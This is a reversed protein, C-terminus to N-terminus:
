ESVVIRALDLRDGVPRGERTVPLRDTPDTLLYLGVALTYAGPQTEPPVLVGFRDLVREDPVWTDTPRLTAGPESDTQALLRGAEDYLHVFVKYRDAISEAARWFLALQLIDGPALAETLLTYGDLCISPGFRADLSVAPVDTAEAPVAYVALRVDGYWAEGAKYTHSELWSEIFREPDSEGEGWFIAFLRQHDAVIQELEAQNIAANFPRQRALPFVHRDDPYYFTFVEWQNPANLVVADGPRAGAEIQHAIARYDARAYGEDFYLNNVSRGTDLSMLAALFLIVSRYSLLTNREGWVGVGGAIRWGGVIGQAVLLSLPAATVLLFKQYAVKYLGLGLILGAPVLVLLAVLTWRLHYPLSGVAEDREDVPPLLSLVTLSGVAILGGSVLATPVTRGFSLLRWIDLLADVLEFSEGPSSWSTVQHWAIPLWPLYLVVVAAQAVAWTLLRRGPARRRGEEGPSRSALLAWLGVGVNQAVWVFPFAYHTYLGAAVTLVYVVLPWRRGGRERGGVPLWAVLAWTSAMAWLALMAYMRAEQAYYVQFPNLAVLGAAALSVAQDEFLRRGLLFTFGVLALSCVASLGRLAAESHGLLARWYHLALYYGPPHIDGEAGALILDVSREALRASNGEDNWFSQADIRYFRLGGALLLILALFFWSRHSFSLHRNMRGRIYLCVAFLKWWITGRAVQGSLAVWGRHSM